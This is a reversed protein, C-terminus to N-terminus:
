LYIIFFSKEYMLMFMMFAVKTFDLKKFGLGFALDLHEYLRANFITEHNESHRIYM